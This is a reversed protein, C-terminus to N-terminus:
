GFRRLKAFKRVVDSNHFRSNLIQTKNPHFIAKSSDIKQMPPASFQPKLTEILLIFSNKDIMKFKQGVFFAKEAKINERSIKASLLTKASTRSPAIFSKEITTQELSTAIVNLQSEKNDTLISSKVKKGRDFTQNSWDLINKTASPYDIFVYNCKSCRVKSGKPKLSGEDLNYITRCSKCTIIM